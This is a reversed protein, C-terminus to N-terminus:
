PGMEMEELTWRGARTDLRLHFHDGASTVSYCLYLTEGERESHVFNTQSVDYRRGAWRFARLEPHALDRRYIVFADISQGVKRIM